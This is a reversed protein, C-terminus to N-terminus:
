ERYRCILLGVAIAALPLAIGSCVSGKRSEEDNSEATPTIQTQSEPKKAEMEGMDGILAFWNTESERQEEKEAVIYM